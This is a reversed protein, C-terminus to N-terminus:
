MKTLIFGIFIGIILAALLKLILVSSSDTSSSDMMSNLVNTMIYLLYTTVFGVILGIIFLTYTFFQRGFFLIALGLIVLLPTLIYGHNAIYSLYTGASIDACASKHSLSIVPWCSDTTDVGIITASDDTSGTSDCIALITVSYTSDSCTDGNTYNFSVVAADGSTDVSTTVGSVSDDSLDYCTGDSDTMYAYVDSTGDCSQDYDDTSVVYSCMNFVYTNSDDDTTEYNSDTLELSRLDYLSLDYYILCLM